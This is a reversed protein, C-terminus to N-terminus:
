QFPAGGILRATKLITVSGVARTASITEPFASMVESTGTSSNPRSEVWGLRLPTLCGTASM